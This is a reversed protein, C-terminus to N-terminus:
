GKIFKYTIKKNEKEPLHLVLTQGNNLVEYREVKSLRNWYDEEFAVDEASGKIKTGGVGTVVMTRKEFESTFFAFYFNLPGKGNIIYQGTENKENKIEISVDYSTTINNEYAVMKWTGFPAVIGGKGGNSLNNMDWNPNNSQQPMMDSSKCAM